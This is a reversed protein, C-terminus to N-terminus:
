GKGLHKIDEDTKVEYKYSFYRREASNLLSARDEAEEKTHPGLKRGNESDVVWFNRAKM